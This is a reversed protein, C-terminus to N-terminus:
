IDLTQGYISRASAPVQGSAGIFSYAGAFGWAHKSIYSQEPGGGSRRANRAKCEPIHLVTVYATVKICAQTQGLSLLKAPSKKPATNGSTPRIDTEWM